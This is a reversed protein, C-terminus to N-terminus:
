RGARRAFFLGILAGAASSGAMTVAFAALSQGDGGQLVGPRGLVFLIAGLALLPVLLAPWRGYRRAVAWSFIGTLALSGAALVALYPLM